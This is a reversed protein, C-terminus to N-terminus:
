ASHRSVERLELERESSDSEDPPFVKRYTARAVGGATWILACLGTGTGLDHKKVAYILMVTFGVTFLALVQLISSTGAKDVNCLVLISRQRPPRYAEVFNSTTPNQETDHIISDARTGRELDDGFALEQEIVDGPISVESSRSALVLGVLVNDSFSDDEIPMEDIQSTLRKLLRKMHTKRHSSHSADLLIEVELDLEVDPHHTWSAPLFPIHNAQNNLYQDVDLLCEHHTNGMCNTTTGDWVDALSHREFIEALTLEETDNNFLEELDSLVLGNKNNKSTTTVGDKVSSTVSSGISSSSSSSLFSRLRLAVDADISHHYGRHSLDDHFTVDPNEASATKRHASSTESKKIIL